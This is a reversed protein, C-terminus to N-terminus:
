FSPFFRLFAINQISFIREAPNTTTATPGTRRLPRGFLTRRRDWKIEGRVDDNYIVSHSVPVSLTQIDPRPWRPASRGEFDWIARWWGARGPTDPDSTGSGRSVRRHHPSVEVKGPRKALFRTWPRNGAGEASNPGKHAKTGLGYYIVLKAQGTKSRRKEVRDGGRALIGAPGSRTAPPCSCGGSRGGTRRAMATGPPDTPTSAIGFDCLSM